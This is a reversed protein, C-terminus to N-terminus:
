RSTDASGARDPDPPGAATVRVAVGAGAGEVCAVVRAPDSCSVATGCGLHRALDASAEPDGGTLVLAHAGGLDEVRAALLRRDGPDGPDAQWSWAAVRSRRVEAATREAAAPDPDVCLVGAGVRGLRVAVERGAGGGAGTVVCTRWRLM